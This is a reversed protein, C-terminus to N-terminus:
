AIPATSSYGTLWTTVGVVYGKGFDNNGYGLLFYCDESNLAEVSDSPTSIPYDVLIRFMPNTGNSNVLAQIGYIRYTDVEGGSEPSNDM